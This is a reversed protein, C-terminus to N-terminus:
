SIPTVKQSLVALAEDWRGGSSEVFKGNVYQTRKVMALRVKIWRALSM